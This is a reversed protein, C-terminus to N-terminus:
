KELVSFDRCCNKCRRHVLRSTGEVRETYRLKSRLSGCLPCIVRIGDIIPAKERAERTEVVPEQAVIEPERHLVEPRYKPPRGRRKPPNQHDQM